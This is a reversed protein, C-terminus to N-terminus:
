NQRECLQNGGEKRAGKAVAATFCIFSGYDGCVDLLRRLSGNGAL